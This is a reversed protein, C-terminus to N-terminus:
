APALTKGCKEPTLHAKLPPKGLRWVGGIDLPAPRSQRRTRLIKGQFKLEIHPLAMREKRAERAHPGGEAPTKRIELSLRHGTACTREQRRTRIIQLEVRHAPTLTKGCKEPPTLHAELPLKGLRWIGGIGLPALERSARPAFLKGRREAGHM